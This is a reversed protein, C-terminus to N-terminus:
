KKLPSGSDKSKVNAKITLVNDAPETNALVTVTKSIQGSGSGNYKVEIKGEDGPMVPDKTFSPVTCGCSARADSIVLPTKGTNKFKFTHSVMVGGEINGFDHETEEFTIQTTGEVKPAANAQSSDGEADELNEYIVKQGEEGKQDCASFTLSFILCALTLVNIKMGNLIQFKLM